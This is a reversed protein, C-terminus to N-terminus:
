DIKVVLDMFTALKETLQRERSSIGTGLDKALKSGYYATAVFTKALQACKLITELEGSHLYLTVDNLILVETAHQLFENLLPEMIKRNLEAYHLVQEPSAGAIRPTYVKKPSLYKIEGILDVYDTLKGGIGGIRKPALDIVTIKEPSVLTMLEELLKAALKTKGSGVEGLILVKKGLIERGKLEIKQENKAL